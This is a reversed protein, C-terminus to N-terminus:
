SQTERSVGVLRELYSDSIFVGIGYSRFNDVQEFRARQKAECFLADLGAGTAVSVAIGRAIAQREAAFTKSLESLQELSPVRSLSSENAYTTAPERVISFPRPQDDRAVIRVPRERGGTEITGLGVGVDDFLDGREPKEDM